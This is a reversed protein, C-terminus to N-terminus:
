FTPRRIGAPLEVGLSFRTRRPREAPDVYFMATVARIQAGLGINQAFDPRDSGTRWAAGAAYEIRIFPPGAFPLVVGRIPLAYGTEVFFLQDGRMSNPDLTPITGPGGVTSWRQAPAAGSVTLLLRARADVRHLLRPVMSWDAGARLQAFEFDGMGRPAWEIETDGAFRSTLGRWGASAGAFVAEINGDDISPNARWPEDRRFVTWPEAAVLSRDESVRLGFRPVIFSEGQIIPPPPLRGITLEVEDSEYYNRVDSRLIFASASNAFDDRIWRDRTRSARSARLAVYSDRSPRVRLELSGGPRERSVAYSVKGILSVSATDGGIGLETGWGATLGNVRDYTPLAIGLVPRTRIFGPGAPRTVSVHFTEDRWVAAVDLAPHIRTVPGTSALGSPYVDWLDLIGGSVTASPRIFLEGGIVAVSGTVRGELAVRADVIVLDGDIFSDAGLTTDRDVLRYAGRELISRVAAVAPDGQGGVIQITQASLPLAALLALLLQLLIRM